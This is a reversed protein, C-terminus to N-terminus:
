GYIKKFEIYAQVPLPNYINEANPNPEYIIVIDKKVECYCTVLSGGSLGYYSICNDIDEIESLKWICRLEINKSLEYTNKFHPLKKMKLKNRKLFEKIGTDTYFCMYIQNVTEILYKYGDWYKKSFEKDKLVTVRFNNM